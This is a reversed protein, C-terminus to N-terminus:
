NRFDFVKYDAEWLVFGLLRSLNQWGTLYTRDSTNSWLSSVIEEKKERYDFM